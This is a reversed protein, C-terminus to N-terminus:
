WFDMLKCDKTYLCCAAGSGMAPAGVLRAFTCYPGGSVCLESCTRGNLISLACHPPTAEKSTLGLSRCINLFIMACRKVRPYQNEASAKTLFTPSVVPSMVIRTWRPTLELRIMKIKCVFVNGLSGCGYSSTKNLSHSPPLFVAHLHLICFNVHLLRLWFQLWANPPRAMCKPLCKRWSGKCSIWGQIASRTKSLGDVWVFLGVGSCYLCFSVESYIGM